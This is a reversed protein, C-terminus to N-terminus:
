EHSFVIFVTLQAPPLLSGLVPQEWSTAAIEWGAEMVYTEDLHSISMNALYHTGCSLVAPAQPEM